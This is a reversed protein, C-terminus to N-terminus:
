WTAGISYSSMRRKITLLAPYWNRIVRNWDDWEKIFTEPITM